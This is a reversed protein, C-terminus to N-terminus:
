PSPDYHHTMSVPADCKYTRTGGNMSEYINCLLSVVNAAVVPVVPPYAQGDVIHNVFFMTFIVAFSLLRNHPSPPPSIINDGM